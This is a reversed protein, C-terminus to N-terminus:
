HASTDTEARRCLRAITRLRMTPSQSAIEAPAGQPVDKVRSRPPTTSHRAQFQQCADLAERLNDIATAMGSPPLTVESDRGSKGTPAKYQAADVTHIDLDCLSPSYNEAEQENETPEEHVVSKDFNQRWQMAWQPPEQKPVLGNELAALRQV